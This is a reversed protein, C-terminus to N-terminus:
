PCPELVHLAGGGLEGATALHEDGGSEPAYPAGFALDVVSQTIERDVPLPVHIGLEDVFTVNAHNGFEMQLQVIANLTAPFCHCHKRSLDWIAVATGHGSVSYMAVAVQGRAALEELQQHLSILSPSYPLLYVPGSVESLLPALGELESNTTKLICLPGLNRNIKALVSFHVISTFRSVDAEKLTTQVVEPKMLDSICGVVMCTEQRPLQVRDCLEEPALFLFLQLRHNRTRCQRALQEVQRDPIVQLTSGLGALTSDYPLGEPLAPNLFEVSSVFRLNETHRGREAVEIRYDIGLSELDANLRKAQSRMARIATARDSIFDIEPRREKLKEFLHLQIAVYPTEEDFDAYNENKHLQLRIADELLNRVLGHQSPPRLEGLLDAYRLNPPDADVANVLMGLDSLSYVESAYPANMAALAVGGVIWGAYAFYPDSTAEELDGFANIAEGLAIRYFDLMREIEDNVRDIGYATSMVCGLYTAYSEHVFVTNREISEIAQALLRLTRRPLEDAANARVGTLLRWLSGLSSTEALDRHWSEHLAAFEPFPNSTMSPNVLKPLGGKDYYGMCVSVRQRVSYGGTSTEPTM